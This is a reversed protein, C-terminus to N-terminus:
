PLLIAGAYEARDPTVGFARESDVFWSKYINDYFLDSRLAVTEGALFARPSVAVGVLKTFDGDYANSNATNSLQHGSIVGNPLNNTDVIPCGFGRLVMAGEVTTGRATVYNSNILQEAQLLVHYVVPDVAIIVDDHAPDVDKLKMSVMLDSLAQYMRAPDTKDGIDSLTVTSGGTYGSPKGATSSYKSQTLMAAKAAQIFFTQDFLKAHAKGDEIGLEERADYSTQFIELLPLAHRTYILTDITLINKGVDNKTAAPAEGPTVKGITSAGFGFSGISNTGLVPRLSVYPSLVSRRDMTHQVTTSYETVATANIDGTQDIQGPRTLQSTPINGADDFLPM